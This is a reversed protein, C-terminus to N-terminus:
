ILEKLAKDIAVIADPLSKHLGDVLINTFSMKSGSVRLPAILHVPIMRYYVAYAMEWSSGDSQIDGTINLVSRCSSVAALDKSVFSSMKVVDFANSIISDIPLAELNEDEAPDYYTLGYATLLAKAEARELLVECVKRGTMAGAIYVDKM